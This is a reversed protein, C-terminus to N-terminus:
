NTESNFSVFIECDEWSNKFTSELLFKLVRYPTYVNVEPQPKMDKDEVRNM